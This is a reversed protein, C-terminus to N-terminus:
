GDVATAFRVPKAALITAPELGCEECRPFPRFADSASTYETAARLEVRHGCFLRLQWIVTPTARDSGSQLLVRLKAIQSASLPPADAAIRKAYAAIEEAQAQARHQKPTPPEASDTTGLGDYRTLDVAEV